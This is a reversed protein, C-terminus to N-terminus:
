LKVDTLFRKLVKRARFLRSKMNEESIDLILCCEKVSFEELYYLIVAERLDPPLKKVARRVNEKLAEEEYVASPSSFDPLNETKDTPGPLRIIRKRYTKIFNFASSIIWPTFAKEIKYGGLSRYIRLFIEQVADQEEGSAGLYSFSIRSIVPGYRRIIVSFANKDGSLTKQVAELIEADGIEQKGM